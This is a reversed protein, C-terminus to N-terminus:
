WCSRVICTMLINLDHLWCPCQEQNQPMFLFVTHSRGELIWEIILSVPTDDVSWVIVRIFVLNAYTGCYLYELDFATLCCPLLVSVSKVQLWTPLTLLSLPTQALGPPLYFASLHPFLCSPSTLSCMGTPSIRMSKINNLCIFCGLSSYLLWSLCPQGCLWHASPLLTHMMRGTTTSQLFTNPCSFWSYPLFSTNGTAPLPCLLLPSPLCAPSEQM